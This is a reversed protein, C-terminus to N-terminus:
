HHDVWQVRSANGGEFHFIIWFQDNGPIGHFGARDGELRELRNGPPVAPDRIDGAAGLLDLKRRAVRRVDEGFRRAASSETGVHTDRTADDLYGVSM